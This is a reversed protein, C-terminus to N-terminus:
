IDASVYISVLPTIICRDPHIYRDLLMPAFVFCQNMDGGDKLYAKIKFSGYCTQTVTEMWNMELCCKRKIFFFLNNEM